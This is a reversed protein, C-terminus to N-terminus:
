GHHPEETTPRAGTIAGPCRVGAWGSEGDHTWRSTGPRMLVPRGCNACLQPPIHRAAYERVEAVAARDLSWPKMGVPYLLRLNIVLTPM